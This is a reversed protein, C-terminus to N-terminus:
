LPSESFTLVEHLLNENGGGAAQAAFPPSNHAAFNRKPLPQNFYNQAERASGPLAVTKSKPHGVISEWRGEM